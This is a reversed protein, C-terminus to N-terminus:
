NDMIKFKEAFYIDNEELGDSAFVASGLIELSVEHMLVIAGLGSFNDAERKLEIFMPVSVFFAWNKKQKSFDPDKEYKANLLNNIKNIACEVKINM